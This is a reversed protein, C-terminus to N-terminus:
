SARRARGLQATSVAGASAATASAKIGSREDPKKVPEPPFASGSDPEAPEPLDKTGNKLIKFTFNGKIDTSYYGKAASFLVGTTAKGPYKATFSKLVWEYEKEVAQTYVQVLAGNNLIDAAADSFNTKTNVWEAVKHAIAAIMHYYASSRAPDAATREKFLKKLKPSLYDGALIVSYNAMGKNELSQLDQVLNADASDIIGLQTALILPANKAGASQVARIMSIIDKYKNKLKTNGSYTLEDVAEVLNKVSAEAGVGGKSSVKIKQGEDDTMISDSLGETKTGGFSIACGSFGSDGLFIEEAEAANGSVTGRQLAIPHLLECFFDRFGTFSVDTPKPISIPLETGSAVQKTLYTLPHDDGFKTAVQEIIDDASLEDLKTLIDQPTMGSNVKVSAKSSFKYGPIDANKWQNATAFSKIENFYRGFYIPGTDSDFTAIAFGGSAGSSTNSWSIDGLEATVEEVAQALQDPTMKGGEEPYFAISNFRIESGDTLSTFVEGPKRNAIGKAEVLALKDLIDRM